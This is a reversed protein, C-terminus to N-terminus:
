TAPGLLDALAPGIGPWQWAFGSDLLRRPVARCSALLVEGAMDGLALRLLGASVILFVVPSLWLERPLAPLLSQKTLAASLVVAASLGWILFSSALFILGSLSMSLTYFKIILLLGALLAAAAPALWLGVTIGDQHRAYFGLLDGRFGAFTQFEPGKHGGALLNLVAPAAAAAATNQGGPALGLSRTLTNSKFKLQPMAEKILERDEASYGSVAESNAQDLSRLDAMTQPLNALERRTEAAGESNGPVLLSALGGPQGQIKGTLLGPLAAAIGGQGPMKGGLLGPLGSAGSALAALLLFKLLTKIM